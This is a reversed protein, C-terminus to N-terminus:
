KQKTLVTHLIHEVLEKNRLDEIEKTTKQITSNLEKVSSVAQQTEANVELVVTEKISM